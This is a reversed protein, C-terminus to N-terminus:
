AAGEPAPSREAKVELLPAATAAPRGTALLPEATVAATTGDATAPPAAPVSSSSSSAAGASTVIKALLQITVRWRARQPLPLDVTLYKLLADRLPVALPMQLTSELQRPPLQLLVPLSAPKLQVCCRVFGEWLLKDNWIARRVLAALITNVIFGTRAPYLTATQMVTRMTLVPITALTPLQQLTAAMVEESFVDRMEFCTQMATTVVFAARLPPKPLPPHPAFALRPTVRWLGEIIKRLTLHDKAPDLKHLAVLLEAPPVPPNGRSKDTM